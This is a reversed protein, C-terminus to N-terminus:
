GSRVLKLRMEGLAEQSYLATELNLCDELEASGGGKWPDFLMSVVRYLRIGDTLYADRCLSHSVSRTKTATLTM